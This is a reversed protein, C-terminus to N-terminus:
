ILFVSIQSRVASDKIRSDRVKSAEKKFIEMYGALLKPNFM